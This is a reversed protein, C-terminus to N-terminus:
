SSSSSSSSSSSAAATCAGPLTQPVGNVPPCVKKVAAGYLM